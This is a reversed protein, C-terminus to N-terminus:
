RGWRPQWDPESDNTLQRVDSGDPKMIFINANENVRQSNFVIWRGDPSWAPAANNGGDTLQRIEGSVIDFTYIDHDGATGAFLLLTRGDPSWDVSGGANPLLGKTVPGVTQTEFDWIYVDYTELAEPSSMAFAVSRGNPAFVPSAINGPGDYLLQPNKGDQGVLWLESPAGGLSNSFVIQSGDPSFASSSVEGIDNTVQVLIASDIVKLYLEFNGDRNSAYLVMKGDPSFVPYYDHAVEATLQFVTGGAPPILCLHNLDSRTCTFVIRGGLGDPADLTPVLTQTPLEIPTVPLLTSTPIEVVALPEVVPAPNAAKLLNWGILVVGLSAVAVVPWIWAALRKREKDLNRHVPRPPEIPPLFDWQGLLVASPSDSGGQIREPVAGPEVRSAMCVTLFFETANGIRASLDEDLGRPLMRALFEPVDPNLKRLDLREDPLTAALLEYLIRALAFVDAAPSLIADAPTYLTSIPPIEGLRRASFLGSLTIKGDRGLRVNEPRLNAHCWGLGHLAAVQGTLNKLYILAEGLSLPAGPTSDLVDRLSPGDLHGEVWFGRQSAEFFGLYPLVGAISVRELERANDEIRRRSEDDPMEALLHLTVAQNTQTDWARYCEVEGPIRVDVRFRGLIIQNTWDTIM